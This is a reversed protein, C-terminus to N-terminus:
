RKMPSLIDVFLAGSSCGTGPASSSLTASVGISARELMQVTSTMPKNMRVNRPCFKKIGEPDM